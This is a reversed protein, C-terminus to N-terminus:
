EHPGILWAQPFVEGGIRFQSPDDVDRELLPEGSAVARKVLAAVRDYGLKPALVTACSVDHVLLQECRERDVDLGAVLRTHFNRVANHLLRTSELSVDACLPWMTHLEFQSWQAATTLTAQGGCVWACVMLLSEAIVPNVKGPMISSGPQVEPIRLEGIGAHPGSGLFRVDNAIKMLALACGALANQARMVAGPFSQAAVCDASSRLSLGTLQQLHSLALQAFQPHANVGTGVATGGLAVATLGDVAHRLDAVADSLLQAYGSLVQRYSIPVADQLHTRGPKIVDGFVQARERLGATLDELAPLLARELESALAIHLATPVVDNSSQCMNVHDNPHVPVGALSSALRAIVENANMNSSTGSGTQFVDVVWDAVQAPTALQQAAQEIAQARGADLLGLERNARAAAQKIAALASRFPLPLTRGSIPFNAVARATQPGYAATDPVEVEGLSDRELRM